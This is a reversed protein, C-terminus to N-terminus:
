RDRMIKQDIEKQTMGLLLMEEVTMGDTDGYAALKKRQEIDRLRAKEEAQLRLAEKLDHADLFSGKRWPYASKGETLRHSRNKSNTWVMGQGPDVSRHSNKGKRVPSKGNSKPILYFEEHYKPFRADAIPKDKRVEEIFKKLHEPVSSASEEKKSKNQPPGRLSIWPNTEGGNHWKKFPKVSNDLGRDHGNSGGDAVADDTRSLDEKGKPRVIEDDFPIVETTKENGHKFDGKQSYKGQYFRTYM